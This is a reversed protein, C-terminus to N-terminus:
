PVLGSARYPPKSGHGASPHPRLSQKTRQSSLCDAEDQLGSCRWPSRSESRRGSRRRMISSMRIRLSADFVWLRRCGCHECNVPIQAARGIAGRDLIQAVILQVQDIV